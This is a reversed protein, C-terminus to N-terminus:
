ALGDYWLPEPRASQFNKSLTKEVSSNGYDEDIKQPAVEV